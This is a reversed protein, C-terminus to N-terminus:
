MAGVKWLPTASRKGGRELPLAVTLGAEYGQISYNPFLTQKTVEAWADSLWVKRRGSALFM